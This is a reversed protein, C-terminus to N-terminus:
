HIIAQYMLYFVSLMIALFLTWYGLEVFFWKVPNTKRMKRSEQMEIYCRANM